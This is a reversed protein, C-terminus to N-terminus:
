RDAALHPVNYHPIHQDSSILILGEILTQAIMVRDFPDLHHPPLQGAAIAHDFSIPLPHFEYASLEKLIQPALPAHLKGSSRKIEIEWLAAASVFIENHEISLVQRAQQGLRPSDALWWLLANTDLLYRSM